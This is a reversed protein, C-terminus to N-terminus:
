QGLVKDIACSLLDIKIWIHNELDFYHPISAKIFALQLFIFFKKADLILFISEETAGINSKYTLNKYWNRVTKHTRNSNSDVIKNYITKFVKLALKKPTRPKKLLFTLLITIKSFSQIFCWYFNAFSIFM